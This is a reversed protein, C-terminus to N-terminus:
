NFMVQLDVCMARCENNVPRNPDHAAQHILPIRVQQGDFGLGNAGVMLFGYELAASFRYAAALVLAATQKALGTAVHFAMQQIELPVRLPELM